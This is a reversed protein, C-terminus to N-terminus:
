EGGIIASSFEVYFGLRIVSGTAPATAANANLFQVLIYGGVNGSGGYPAPALTANPDGITEVSQIGTVLPAQVMGTSSGSGTSSAIFAAGIKPIVGKELGVNYWDAQSSDSVSVGFAFGTPIAGDAPAGPLAGSKTNTATVTTTGAASFSYVGLPASLNGPQAALLNSLTTVLAAGIQAATANTAISQQVLTGSVGVPAAGVGSVSFWVIYTNGYADYIRFWTSALSGNVDAVPAITVAGAASAGVATIVYPNGVTLAAAAATIALNTGSYPGSNLAMGGVYKVYNYNLQIVGYGAAPNPNIVGGNGASPTGTTHLFVNKVGAGKLGTIGTGSSPAVTFETTIWVPKNLFSYQKGYNNGLAHSM